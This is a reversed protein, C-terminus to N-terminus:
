LEQKIKDMTEVKICNTTPPRKEPPKQTGIITDANIETITQIFTKFIGESFKKVKQRTNSNRLISIVLTAAKTM